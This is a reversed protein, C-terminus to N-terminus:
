RKHAQPLRVSDLSGPSQVPMEVSRKEREELLDIVQYFLDEVRFSIMTQGTIAEFWSDKHHVFVNEGDTDIELEAFPFTVQPLIRQLNAIGKRIKQLSVGRELLRRIVSLQILDTFSYKRRRTSKETPSFLGTEDWYQLQRNTIGLIQYVDKSYYWRTTVDSSAM